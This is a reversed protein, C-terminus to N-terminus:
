DYVFKVGVSSSPATTGGTGGATVCALTLATGFAIGQSFHYTVKKSAQAKLVVDPSNTGVTTGGSAIDYLKVFSNVSNATNDIEVTYLTASSTKVAIATSGAATETTQTAGLAAPRGFTTTAM